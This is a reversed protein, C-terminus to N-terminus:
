RGTRNEPVVKAERAKEQFAQGEEAVRKIEEVYGDIQDKVKYVITSGLYAVLITFLIVPALLWYTIFLIYETVACSWILPWIGIMYGTWYILSLYSVVLGIISVYRDGGTKFVSSYM